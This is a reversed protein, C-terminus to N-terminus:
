PEEVDKLPGGPGGPNECRSPSNFFFFFLKPIRGSGQKNESGQKLTDADLPGQKLAGSTLMRGDAQPGTWPLIGSVDLSKAEAPWPPDLKM